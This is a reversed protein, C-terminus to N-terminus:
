GKRAKRTRKPLMPEVSVAACRAFSFLSFSFFAYALSLAGMAVGHAAFLARVLANPSPQACHCAHVDFSEILRRQKLLIVSFSTATFPRRLASAFFSRQVISCLSWTTCVISLVAPLRLSHLKCARAQSAFPHFARVFSLSFM